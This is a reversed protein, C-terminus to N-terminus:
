FTQTWLENLAEPQIICWPFLFSVSSVLKSDNKEFFFNELVYIPFNKFVSWSFTASEPLLLFIEFTYKLQVM